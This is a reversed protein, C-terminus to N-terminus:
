ETAFPLYFPCKFAAQWEERKGRGTGIRNTVAWLVTLDALELHDQM